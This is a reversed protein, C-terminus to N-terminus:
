LMRVYDRWMDWADDFRMLPNAADPLPCADSTMCRRLLRVGKVGTKDNTWLNMTWYWPVHGLVVQKRVATFAKTYSEGVTVKWTAHKMPKSDTAVFIKLENDNVNANIRLTPVFVVPKSFDVVIHKVTM